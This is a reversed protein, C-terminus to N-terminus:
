NLGGSLTRKSRTSKVEVTSWIQRKNNSKTLHRACCVVLIFVLLVAAAAGLGVYLSIWGLSEPGPRDTPRQPEPQDVASTCVQTRLGSDPCMFDSEDKESSTKTLSSEDQFSNM